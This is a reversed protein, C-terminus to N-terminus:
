LNARDKFILFRLPIKRMFLSLSVVTFVLVLWISLLGCLALFFGPVVSAAIILLLVLM